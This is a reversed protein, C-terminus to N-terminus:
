RPLAQGCADYVRAIAAASGAGPFSTTFSSYGAQLPEIRFAIRGAASAAKSFQSVWERDLLIVSGGGSEIWPANSIAGRDFRHTITSSSMNIGRPFMLAIYVKQSTYDCKVILTYRDSNHMRAPTTRMIFSTPVNSTNVGAPASSDVTAIGRRRDTMPDTTVRVNWGRADAYASTAVGGTIGLCGLAVAVLARM